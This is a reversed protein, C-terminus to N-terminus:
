GNEVDGQQLQEFRIEIGVGDKPLRELNAGIGYVGLVGIEDAIVPIQMRKAAPIKKDIYLEKLRKTGGTLKMTDGPQRCRFVIKGHAAVSFRDPLNVPQAGPMCIIRLGLQPLELVGPCPLQQEFLPANDQYLELTDYNRCVTVGNPFCGRAAPKDSFVMENLLRIHEAEPERVGWSELLATLVRSRCASSMARLAPVSNTYANKALSELEREDEQLRLAMESLSEAICPNEQRLLPIVHHRLRNRLFDDTDNTSDHVFNLNYERVFDLVEDRTIGLMPRIVSGTVPAIAGLGKLGTGRIMRMMVTEANDDATHATAIKGPITKFFSYRADRAAAELGKEGAVVNGGSVHLAIDYRQCFDRVFQEDRNSEEGRLHHNFHAAAVSIKLKDRLLYFAFLMAISDAGGSVACVVADGAEVMQYKRVFGCLKNLM